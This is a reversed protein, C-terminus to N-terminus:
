ITLPWTPQGMRLSRRNTEITDGVHVACVRKLPKAESWASKEAYRFGVTQESEATVDGSYATEKRSRRTSWGACPLFLISDGVMRM